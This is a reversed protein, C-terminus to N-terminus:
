HGSPNVELDGCPLAIGDEGSSGASVIQDGERAITRDSPDILVVVGYERRATYGQPWIVGQSTAVTSSPLGTTLTTLGHRWGGEGPYSRWYRSPNSTAGSRRCCARMRRRRGCCCSCRRLSVYHCPSAGNARRTALWHRSPPKM